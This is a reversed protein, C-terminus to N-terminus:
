GSPGLALKRNDSLAFIRVVTSNNQVLSQIAVQMSRTHVVPKHQTLTVHFTHPFFLHLLIQQLM